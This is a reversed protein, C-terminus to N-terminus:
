VYEVSYSCSGSVVKIINIGDDRTSLSRLVDPHVLADRVCQEILTKIENDNLNRRLFALNAYHGDDLIGRLILDIRSLVRERRIPTLPVTENLAIIIGCNPSVKMIAECYYDLNRILFSDLDENSVRELNLVVIAVNAYRCFGEVLERYREEGITDWVKLAFTNSGVQGMNKLVHSFSRSNIGSLDRELFKSCLYTKGSGKNGVFVVNAIYDVAMASNRLFVFGSVLLLFFLVIKKVKLM